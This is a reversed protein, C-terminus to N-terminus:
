SVTKSALVGSGGQTLCIASSITNPIYIGQRVNLTAGTDGHVTTEVQIIWHEYTTDEREGIFFLYTAVSTIIRVKFCLTRIIYSKGCCM